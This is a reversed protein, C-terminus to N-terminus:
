LKRWKSTHTYQNPQRDSPTAEVLAVEGYAMTVADHEIQLPSNYGASGRQYTETCTIYKVGEVTQDTM